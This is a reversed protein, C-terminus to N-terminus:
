LHQALLATTMSNRFWVRHADHNVTVCALFGPELDIKMMKCVFFASFVQDIIALNGGVLLDRLNAPITCSVTLCVIALRLERQLM